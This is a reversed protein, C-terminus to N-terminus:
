RSKKRKALIKETEVIDKERERLAERVDAEVEIVNNKGIVFKIKEPKGLKELVPIPMNVKSGKEENYSVNVSFETANNKWKPM